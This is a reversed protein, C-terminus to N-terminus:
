DKKGKKGFKTKKDDKNKKKKEKKGAKNSAVTVPATVPAIAPAKSLSVTTDLTPILVKNIVHIVGNNTLTDPILLVADNVMTPEVKITVDTGQLTNLNLGDTLRSSSVIEPLIHYTLINVLDAKNAPDKLSALTANDIMSFADNTPAFFTFTGPGRLTDILGALTALEILTSSFAAPTALAVKKANGASISIYKLDNTM